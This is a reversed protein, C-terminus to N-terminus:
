VVYFLMVIIRNYVKQTKTHDIVSQFGCNVYFTDSCLTCISFEVFIKNNGGCNSGSVM